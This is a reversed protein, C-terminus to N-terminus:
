SRPPAWGPPRKELFAGLGERAEPTARLEAIRRATAEVLQDDLPAGALDRVLRGAEGQARPGGALLAEIVQQVRADLQEPEALEHALGLERARAAPMREGTLFWRTAQRAGIARIVYPGIVAPILGLRVETTGFQAQTSAICIACAAALGMGGGLAAGQVRAVTPTSLQHLTRFLDALRRADELNQEVSAAGQRRMWSLDAGASFSAGRGALVVVRVAPDADLTRLAATLDTILLEDFANHVEPRSMWIWAAPGRREIELTPTAM